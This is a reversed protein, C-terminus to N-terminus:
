EAKERGAAMSVPSLEVHVLWNGERGPVLPQVLQIRVPLAPESHEMFFRRMSDPSEKVESMELSALGPKAAWDAFTKALVVDERDAADLDCTWFSGKEDAALFARYLVRVAGDAAFAEGFVEEGDDEITEEPPIDVRWMEPLQRNQSRVFRICDQLAAGFPIEAQTAAPNGTLSAALAALRGVTRSWTKM